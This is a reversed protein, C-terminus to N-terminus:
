NEKKIKTLQMGCNPCKGAKDSKVDPHMPCTYGLKAKEKSSLNLTMGCVPCVGPKNSTVNPHSPCVYNKAQAMKIEEKKSLNLKMGCIPCNGPQKMKVSDHMPCTYWVIHKTTDTRGGKTQSFVTVSVITLAAMMLMKVTKM